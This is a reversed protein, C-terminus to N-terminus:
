HMSVSDNHMGDKKDGKPKGMKGNMAIWQGELLKKTKGNTMTVTGDQAVMVQGNEMLLCDKMKGGSMSLTSRLSYKKENVHNSFQLMVDAIKPTIYTKCFPKEIDSYYYNLFQPDNLRFGGFAVVETIIACDYDKQLAQIAALAAMAQAPDTTYIASRYKHRLSHRSTCSHTALHVAVLTDLPIIGPDFDIMVAESFRDCETADAIWGQRVGVVGRLSQFIAETCWHCSGGMGITEMGCLYNM